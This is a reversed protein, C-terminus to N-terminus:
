CSSFNCPTSNKRYLIFFFIDVFSVAQKVWRMGDWLAIEGKKASTIAGRSIYEFLFSRGSFGAGWAYSNGFFSVRTTYNYTIDIKLTITNGTPAFGIDQSYYTYRGGGGGGGRSSISSGNNIRISRFGLLSTTQLSAFNWKRDGYTNYLLRFNTIYSLPSPSLVPIATLSGRNRLSYNGDSGRDFVLNGGDAYNLERWILGSAVDATFVFADGSKPNLPFATGFNLDELNKIASADLRNLDTLASLKTVISAGTEQPDIETLEKTAHLELPNSNQDGTPPSSTFFNVYKIDSRDEADIDVSATTHDIYTHYAHAPNDAGKSMRITTVQNNSAPVGSYFRVYIDDPATSLDTKRILITLDQDSEEEIQPAEATTITEELEIRMVPTNSPTLPQGGDATSLRGFVDGFSSYGYNFTSNLTRSAPNNADAGFTIQFSHLEGADAGEVEVWRGPDPNNIRLVQGNAYPTLDTPTTDVSIFQADKVASGALRDQGSLTELKDKIQEATDSSGGGSPLNQIASAELRDGGSLSELKTVIQAATDAPSSVVVWTGGEKVYLRDADIDWYFHGELGLLNNPVGNGRLTVSSEPFKIREDTLQWGGSKFSFASIDLSTADNNTPITYFDNGNILYNGGYVGSSFTTSIDNGTVRNNSWDYAQLVNNNLIWYHSEDILQAYQNISLNEKSSLTFTNGSITYSRAIPNVPSGTSGGIVILKNNIVKINNIFSFDTLTQSSLNGFVEFSGSRTTSGFSYLRNRYNSAGPTSTTSEFGGSFWISNGIIVSRFSVSDFNNLTVIKRFSADEMHTRRSWRRLSLYYSDATDRSAEQILGYNSNSTTFGTSYIYNDDKFQYLSHYSGRSSAKVYNADLDKTPDAIARANYSEAGTYYYLNIDGNRERLLVVDGTEASQPFASVVPIRTVNRTTGGGSPLNQIASADLRDGGRLSELKTVIQAATDPSVGAGGSSVNINGRKVWITGNYQAVDGSTAATLATNGDTDVYNTLATASSNFVFIDKNQPSTPFAGGFQLNGGAFFDDAKLETEIKSRLSSYPILFVDRNAGAKQLGEPATFVILDENRITGLRPYDYIIAM